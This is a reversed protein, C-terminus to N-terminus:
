FKKMIGKKIEHWLFFRAANLAGIDPKFKKEKSLRVIQLGHFGAEALDDLKKIGSRVIINDLSKVKGNIFGKIDDVNTIFPRAIGILDLENKELVENCFEFSRFGGTVMLPVKTVSRIKKAFDIFYAERKRTSERIANNEDNMMLFAIKEYTGGSIELLDIGALDLEKVLEFADDESFGGRQFDSSNIKVSIPFKPGVVNRVERVITLLLRSRNELSGGWQDNRKNTIPSLFQNLLYGHASHIQLGTFGAKKTLTAAKVFNFIVEQIDEETMAKPKMFLGLKKLKVASPAKPRFSNLVTTQRGAHSIQPWIHNGKSTGAKVWPKLKEALELDGFYVNGCSELHVKDIMVNGTILLGADSEAWKTYLVEHDRTPELKRNAIRETMAAKVIRNRLSAGCPLIIPQKLFNHEM